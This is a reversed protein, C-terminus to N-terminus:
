AKWSPILVQGGLKTYTYRLETQVYNLNIYTVRPQCCLQAVLHAFCCSIRSFIVDTVPLVALACALPSLPPTDRRAAESCRQLSVAAFTEHSSGGWFLLPEEKGSTLHVLHPVQFFVGLM